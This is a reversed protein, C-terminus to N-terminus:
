PTRSVPRDWQTCVIAGLLLVIGVMRSPTIPHPTLGFWGLQDVVLSALM